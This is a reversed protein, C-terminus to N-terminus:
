RNKRNAAQSLTAAPGFSSQGEAEEMAQARELYPKADNLMATLSDATAKMKVNAKMKYSDVEQITAFIDSFAKKLADESIGSSSAQQHIRSTQQRLNTGTERILTNTVDNTADIQDLVRRQQDLAQTTVIATRLAPITNNQARQVGKILETNNRRILHMAMYGQTAVAAQQILDQSKQRVLYQVDKEYTDAVLMLQQSKNVDTSEDAENRTAEINNKIEIDLREALFIYERIRLMNEYQGQAEDMLEDNDLELETKGNELAAIIADLQEQATDSQQLKQNFLDGFPLKALIARLGKGGSGHPNLREVTTRLDNLSNAVSKSSDSGSSKAGSVSSSARQLMRTSEKATRVTEAHALNTIEAVKAVYEPSNPTLTGVEAAFNRATEEIRLRTGTEMPPLLGDVTGGAPEITEVNTLEAVRELPQEVRKKDSDSVDSESVEDEVVDAEVIFDALHTDKDNQDMPTKM